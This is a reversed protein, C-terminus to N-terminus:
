VNEFEVSMRLFPDGVPVLSARGLLFVYLGGVAGMVGLLTTIDFPHFHVQKPHLMPGLFWYLDLYHAVAICIAVLVLVAHTRKAHRALLGWLPILFHGAVFAVLLWGWSSVHGVDFGEATTKYMRIGFFYTEEPIDAYAILFYQSYWIYAWFVSFGFILKGWDHDHESTIVGHLLGQKRLVVSVLALFALATVFAGAFIYVGFMTSSWNPDLSMVWDFGAFAMTISTLLIAPASWKRLSQLNKIDRTQELKVSRYRVWWGLVSWCLLYAAARAFFFPLNLYSAKALVLPNKLAEPAAWIGYLTRVHFAIPLFLIAFLPLTGALTEALRRVAVSWTSATVHQILVFILAGLALTLGFLYATLYSLLWQHLQGPHMLWELATIGLSLLVLGGAVLMGNRQSRAPLLLLTPLPSAPTVSASTM